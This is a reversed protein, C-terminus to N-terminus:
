DDIDLLNSIRIILDMQEQTLRSLLHRRVSEAHAPLAARLKERGMRTLAVHVAQGRSPRRELLARQQMRTLQHSLRSKDWGLADALDQQRMPDKGALALRSLVAFEPGSIGTAQAIDRGVRALVEEGMARFAYWIRRERPSLSPASM